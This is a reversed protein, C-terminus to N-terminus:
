FHEEWYGLVLVIWDEVCINMEVWLGHSDGEEPLDTLVCASIFDKSEGLTSCPCVGMSREHFCFKMSIGRINRSGFWKDAFSCLM